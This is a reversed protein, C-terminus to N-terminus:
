QIAVFIFIKKASRSIKRTWDTVFIFIISFVTFLIIVKRKKVFTFISTNWRYGHAQLLMKLWSLCILSTLFLYTIILLLPNVMKYIGWPTVLVFVICFVASLIIGERKGLLGNRLAMVFYILFKAIYYICMGFSLVVFPNAPSEASSQTMGVVNPVPIPCPGTSVILNMASGPPVQMGGAPNQSIVNGTLVTDSCQQSITGVTLGAGTIMSSANSQTMGVVDPVERLPGGQWLLYPYSVGENIGWITTFNWGIFTAKQKMEATTKGTGGASSSQGSTQIDWYSGSVTGINGGSLGGINNASGTVLGTSYCNTVMGDIGNYGILGGVYDNSVSVSCMSYCNLVTGSYNGGILGGVIRYGSVSGTSFCNLVMGKNGNYGVLGGIYYGDSEVSGMSYCNSVTSLNWGVLAGVKGGGVIWFHEIGLNKVMSGLAITGFLGVFDAEPMNIYLGMIKHGKGDFKGTFPNIYTGIPAFGAGSNWNVTDRADINQTLEYNGDLPYGTDNGIKQLEEISDIQIVIIEGEPSGEIIGEGEPIGEGEQIGEPTGEIIGEGETIGEPIMEPFDKIDTSSILVSGPSLYLFM